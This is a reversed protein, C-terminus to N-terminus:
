LAKIMVPKEGVGRLKDGFHNSDHLALQWRGTRIYPAERERAGKVSKNLRQKTYYVIQRSSLPGSLGRDATAGRGATDTKLM